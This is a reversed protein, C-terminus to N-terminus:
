HVNKRNERLFDKLKGLSIGRHSIKNKTDLDLEAFTQTYGAPIFLPDYGFGGNGRLSDTIKGRCVGEFYNVNNGEVLSLVCRFEAGRKDAPVLSLESLLKECNQKDTANNGAYRASYVGPAGNLYDVELGSDDALVPVNVKEYVAKAKILANQEFTKGTEEVDPIEPKDLLSQFEIDLGGLISKIEKIKGKNKSAIFIKNFM